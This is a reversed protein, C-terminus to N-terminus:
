NVGYQWNSCWFTGSSATAPDEAGPRMARASQGHCRAVIGSLRRRYAVSVIMESFKPCIAGYRTYIAVDNYRFPTPLTEIQRRARPNKSSLRYRQRRGGVVTLRVRTPRITADDPHNPEIDASSRRMSSAIRRSPPNHRYRSYM